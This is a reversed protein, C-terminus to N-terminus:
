QEFNAHGKKRQYVILIFDDLAPAAARDCSPVSCIRSVTLTPILRSRLADLARVTVRESPLFSNPPKWDV